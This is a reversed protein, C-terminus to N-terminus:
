NNHEVKGNETELIEKALTDMLKYNICLIITNETLDGLVNYDDESNVRKDTFEIGHLM